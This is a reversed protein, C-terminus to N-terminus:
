LDFAFRNEKLYEVMQRKENDSKEKVPTHQVLSHHLLDENKSKFDDYSGIVKAPSGASISNDPVDRSVVAGAGIVVNSGIRVGPLIIARTGVFVNDGIVVREVKSYGLIKKTSADHAQIEAHSITVNNGIEILYGHDTDIANTYIHCNDGIKIGKSRLENISMQGGILNMLLRKIREITINM